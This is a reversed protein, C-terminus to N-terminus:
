RRIEAEELDGTGTISIGMISISRKNNKNNKICIGLV